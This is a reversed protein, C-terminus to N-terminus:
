SSDQCLLLMCLMAFAASSQQEPLADLTSSLTGLLASSLGREAQLRCGAGEM